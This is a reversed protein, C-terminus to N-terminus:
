VISEGKRRGDDAASKKFFFFIRKREAVCFEVATSSGQRSHADGGALSICYSGHEIDGGDTVGASVLRYCSVSLSPASDFVHFM